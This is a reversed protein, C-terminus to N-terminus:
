YKYLSHNKKKKVFKNTYLLIIILILTINVNVVNFFFQCSLRLLMTLDNKTIKVRCPLKLSINDM